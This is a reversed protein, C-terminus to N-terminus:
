EYDAEVEVFEWIMACERGSSECQRKDTQIDLLTVGMTNKEEFGVLVMTIASAIMANLACILIINKM